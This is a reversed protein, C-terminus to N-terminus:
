IQDLAQTRRKSRKNLQRVSAEASNRATPAGEVASARIRGAKAVAESVASPRNELIPYKYREDFRAGANM